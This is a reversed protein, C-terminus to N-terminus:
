FRDQVFIAAHRLITSLVSFLNLRVWLTVGVVEALVPLVYLEM